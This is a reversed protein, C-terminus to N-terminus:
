GRGRKGKLRRYITSRSIGLRRAASSVNGDCERLVEEIMRDSTSRLDGNGPAATSTITALIEDPLDDVEIRDGTVTLSWRICANRLERINGPWAYDQLLVIAEPSIGPLPRGAERCACALWHELLLPIDERRERLAPLRIELVNLRYYLDLRFSGEEVMPRLDRGSACILRVDVQRPLQAGLPTVQGDELVRLLKAQLALPLSDIEDLFLTGGSAQELRGRAGERRAGTFAGAVHGFLESEALDTPMAGCNLAVLPGERRDSAEHIAHAVLEKGTGSEGRILIPHAACAAAARRALEITRLFAPAQGLLDQFRYRPRLPPLTRERRQAPATQQRCLRLAYGSLRGEHLLPEPVLLEEGGVPMLPQQGREAEAGAIQQWWEPRFEALKRGTVPVANGEQLLMAAAPTAEVILGNLDLLLWPEGGRRQLLTRFQERLAELLQLHHLQVAQEVAQAISCTLVMTDLQAREAAGTIDVAGIIREGGPDRIPAGYCVWPQWGRCFHETGFVMEPRGLSLPTGIGNPGVVRENWLAGPSFNISELADRIEQHGVSCLLRGEADGLVIVHATGAVMPAYHELIRRGCRALLDSELLQELRDPELALPARETEPAIGLERSQQWRHAIIPRPGHGPKLSGSTIFDEWSRAIRSIAARPDALLELGQPSLHGSM